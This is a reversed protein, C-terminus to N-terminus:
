RRELAFRAKAEAEAVELEWREDFRRQLAESSALILPAPRYGGRAQSDLDVIRGLEVAASAEALPLPELLRELARFRGEALPDLFRMRGHWRSAVHYHSPVVVIGDLRLRECILLMLIAVDDFMRLGPHRQGPLPARGASWSARPNQLLMWEIRLLEMGAVTRRDRALRVEVLLATQSADGWIRV